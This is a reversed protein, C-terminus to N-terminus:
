QKPNGAGRPDCLLPDVFKGTFMKSLWRGFQFSDADIIYAATDQVLINLDNFDGIVVRSQHIGTVTQHLDLFIKVIMENSIGAQRFVREGYRLLVETPTQFRMQYGVVRQGSHDTALHEPVIVRSPLGKPFARLKQQHEAIRIEAAQQEHPLGQFDPHNPPKFIKIANQGDPSFVDAEGGKGISQSPNLRVRKGQIYVDM